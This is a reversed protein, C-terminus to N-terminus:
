IQGVSAIGMGPGPVLSFIFSNRSHGLKRLSPKLASAPSQTEKAFVAGFWVFILPIFKVLPTVNRVFLHGALTSSFPPM